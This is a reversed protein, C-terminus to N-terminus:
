NHHHYLHHHYRHHMWGDMWGDMRERVCKGICEMAVPLWTAEGGHCRTGVEVLCPSYLMTAEGQGPSNSIVVETCIIEM